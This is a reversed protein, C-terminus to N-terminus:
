NTDGANALSNKVVPGGPFDGVTKKFFYPLHWNFKVLGHGCGKILKPATVIPVGKIQKGM